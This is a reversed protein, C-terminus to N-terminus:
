SIVRIVGRPVGMACTIEYDGAQNPTFKMVITKGAKLYESKNYLGPVTISSMCGQGNEKVAVELSVPLGKKVKFANPQIDGSLTYSMKIVQEGKVVPSLSSKSPDGLTINGGGGCGGGSGGCGKAIIPAPSGDGTPVLNLKQDDDVVIFKGTYMGMTCSFRIEGTKTPTFEIINEGKKLGRNIGYERMMISAACTFPNTSTIIWKVPQGKKVTFVNPSYGNTSQTMRVIQPEGVNKIQKNDVSKFSILQSANTINYVGLVIVMLGATMFFLRAARGKFISALGGVGLLGPATGLAFLMMVLGGTIFSGTSVAYLQMAQTFGCPLFFTLAGATLANRTSYKKEHRNIGLFKAISTPLSITQNRLAPFIEILKLGLFIMVGGVIITLLGLVNSSMRFATGLLGIVGGLIGFGIIRGLNFYFHPIFKQKISAEPHIEAYRSALGLVLGGVLAMCTSVGAVLGVILAALLGTKGASFDLSAIGSQSAVLIILALIAAAILLDRYDRYDSSLLPLSGKQGMQYGASIVEKEIVGNSPEHGHYFIEVQGTRHNSKVSTINNIKKLHDEVLIECSKCHMGSIFIKKTKHSM